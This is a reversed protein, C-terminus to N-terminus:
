MQSRIKHLVDEEDSNLDPPESGEHEGNDEMAEGMPSENAEEAPNEGMEDHPMVSVKEIALGHGGALQNGLRSDMLDKIEKLVDLAADKQEGLM